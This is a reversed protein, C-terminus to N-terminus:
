LTKAAGSPAALAMNMSGAMGTGQQGAAPHQMPMMGPPPAMPQQQQYPNGSYGGQQPYGAYQQQGPYPQQAYHQVMYQQGPQQYPIAIAQGPGPQVVPYGPQMTMGGAQPQGPVPTMTVVTVSPQQSYYVGSRSGVALLKDTMCMQAIALALNIASLVAALVIALGIWTITARPALPLAYTNGSASKAQVCHLARRPRHLQFRHALAHGPDPEHLRARLRRFLPYCSWSWISVEVNAVAIFFVGIPWAWAFALLEIISFVIISIAM